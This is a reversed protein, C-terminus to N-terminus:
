YCFDIAYIKHYEKALVLDVKKNFLVGM